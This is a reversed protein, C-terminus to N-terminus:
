QNNKFREFERKMASGLDAKITIENLADIAYNHPQGDVSILKRLVLGIVTKKDDPMNKLIGLAIYPDMAQGNKFDNETLSFDKQMLTYFRMENDTIRYDANMIELTLCVLCAKEKEALVM